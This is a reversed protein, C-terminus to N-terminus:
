PATDRVNWTWQASAMVMVDQIEAEPPPEAIKILNTLVIGNRTRGTEQAPESLDNLAQRVARMIYGCDEVAEDTAAQPLVLLVGVVCVGEQYGNQIGVIWDTGLDHVILGRTTAMDQPWRKRAIIANRSDDYITVVGPASDGSDIDVPVAVASATATAATWTTMDASDGGTFSAVGGLTWGRLYITGVSTSPVANAPTCELTHSLALTVAGSLIARYSGDGLATSSSLLGATMAFSPVTGAWTITADIPTHGARYLRVRSQTSTGKRVDVTVSAAGAFACAVAASLTGDVGTSADECVYTQDASLRVNVGYGADELWDAVMRVHEIM